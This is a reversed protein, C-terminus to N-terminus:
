IAELNTHALLPPTHQPILHLSLTLHYHNHHTFRGNAMTQHGRARSPIQGRPHYLSSGTSHRSGTLDRKPHPHSIRITVYNLAGRSEISQKAETTSTSPQGEMTVALLLDTDCGM